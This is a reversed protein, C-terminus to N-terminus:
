GKVNTVNKRKKKLDKFVAMGLLLLFLRVVIWSLAINFMILSPGYFRVSSYCVWLSEHYLGVCDEDREFDEKKKLV